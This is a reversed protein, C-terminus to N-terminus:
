YSGSSRGSGFSRGGSASGGGGFSRGGGSMSRGISAGGGSNSRGTSWGGGGSTWGGGGTSVWVSRRRRRAIIREQIRLADDAVEAARSIAAEVDEPLVELSNELDDLAQGDSSKFLEWGISRRARAISRSARSLERALERRLAEMRTRQEEATGLLEDIQRNLRDGTEAVRLYNPKVQRLEQELGDVARAVVAPRAVLAPELDAQHKSVYATLDTLVARCQAVIGPAEERARDLDVILDDVQDLLHDAAILRLGAADLQRGADDFRQESIMRSIAVDQMEDARELEDTALEPYDAAWQWSDSAHTSALVAFQRRLDEVRRLELDAAAELGANWKKLSSVRSPLSQLYHDTAFLQAEDAEVSESLALLDLELRDFVLSDISTRIAVLDARQGDVAWGESERQDAIESAEDVEEDLLDVKAPLTVRLHDIHAGFAALRDLSEDQADLARSLEMVRDRARAIAAHDANAVGDPVAQSLLGGARDTEARVSDSERQLLTLNELTKGATTKSWGDAQVRLRSDRERLVGLRALPPASSRELEERAASLRRQRNVLFFVAGCAGIGALGGGIAWPSQGPGGPEGVPTEDLRTEPEVEDAIEETSGDDGFEAAVGSNIEEIAAIFGGTFDGDVFRSGMADVRLQDPNPVADRLASGVLVDSLRDGVSHGLVVVDAQVGSTGDGFCTIVVDDIASVLDAGPVEAFSRVIINVASPGSEIAEQVAAVDVEGSTDIVNQSCDLPDQAVAPGAFALVSMVSVFLATGVRVVSSVSPAGFSLRAPMAAGPRDGHGSAGRKSEFRIM